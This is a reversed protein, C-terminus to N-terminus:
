SNLQNVTSGAALNFFLQLPPTAFEYYSLHEEVCHDIYSSKFLFTADGRCFDCCYPHVHSHEASIHCFLEGIWRFSTDCLNCDSSSRHCDTLDQRHQILEDPDSFSQQCRGCNISKVPPEVLNHNLFHARLRLTKCPLVPSLAEYPLLM